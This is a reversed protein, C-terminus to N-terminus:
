GRPRLSLLELDLIEDLRDICRVRPDDLLQPDTPPYMGEPYRSWLGRYLVAGCGAREAGVVDLEWRDGVHLIERLPVSVRRSAAEFIAPDPKAAGVECSTIVHRFPLGCRSRLFRMWSSEQRATNTIAMVPIGQEELPTMVRALESNVEPPHEFLGADSYVQGAEESPLTLRADLTAAYARVLASPPETTPGRGENRLREETREIGRAIEEPPLTAGNRARLMQRLARVRDEHWREDLDAGQFIATFWLDLSVARYGGLSVM